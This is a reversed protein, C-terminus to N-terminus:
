AATRKAASPWDSCWWCCGCLRPVGSRARNRGDIHALIPRSVHSSTLPCPPFALPASCAPRRVRRTPPLQLHLGRLGIVLHYYTRTSAGISSPSAGSSRSWPLPLFRCFTPSCHPSDDGPQALVSRCLLPLDAYIGTAPRFRTLVLSVCVGARFCETAGSCSVSPPCASCAILVLTSHFYCRRRAIRVGSAMAICGYRRGVTAGDRRRV